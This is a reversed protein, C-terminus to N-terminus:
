VKPYVYTTIASSKRTVPISPSRNQLDDFFDEIQGDELSGHERVQDSLNGQMEAQLEVAEQRQKRGEQSYWHNARKEAQTKPSDKIKILM